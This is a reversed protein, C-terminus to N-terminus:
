IIRFGNPEVTVNELWIFLRDIQFSEIVFADKRSEITEQGQQEQRQRQTPKM